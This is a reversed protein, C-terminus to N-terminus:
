GKFGYYFGMKEVVKQPPCINCYSMTEGDHLGEIRSMACILEILFIYNLKWAVKHINNNKRFHLHELLVIIDYGEDSPDNWGIANGYVTKKAEIEVKHIYDPRSM